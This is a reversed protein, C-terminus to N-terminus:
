FMDAWSIGSQELVMLADDSTLPLGLDELIARVQRLALSDSTVPSFLPAPDQM